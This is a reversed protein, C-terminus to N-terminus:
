STGSKNEKLINYGELNKIVTSNYHQCQAFIICSLFAAVICAYCSVAFELLVILRSLM